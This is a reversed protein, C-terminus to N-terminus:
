PNGCQLTYVTYQVSCHRKYALYCQPVQGRVHDGWVWMECENKGEYPRHFVACHEVPHWFLLTYEIGRTGQKQSLRMIPGPRREYLLAHAEQSRWRWDVEYHQIILYSMPRLSRIENYICTHKHGSTHREFSRYRIWVKQPTHLASKLDQLTVANIAVVMGILLVLKSPRM